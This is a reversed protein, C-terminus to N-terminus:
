GRKVFVEVQVRAFSGFVGTGGEINDIVNPIEGPSLTTHAHEQIDQSRIFDLVNDDIAHINIKNPGFFAIALWPIKIAITGDPNLDFNAENVIFFENIRFDELTHEEEDLLDRRFPTLQELRADLAEISFIFVNQRGPYFSPTVDVQL